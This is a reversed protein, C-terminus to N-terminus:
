IRGLAQEIDGILDAVHEIGISLRVLNDPVPSSDGEISKRHEALSESGGLSTAPIILNLRTCFRKADAFGGKILLSIMGGFGDTMQRAAVAHGPHSALGPYIVAEINPHTEFHQAIVMANTCAQRYRVFLTRMGRMLLWCEFPALPASNKGRAIRL